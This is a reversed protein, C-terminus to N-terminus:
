TSRHSTRPNQGSSERTTCPPVLKTSNTSKTPDADRRKISESTPLHSVHLTPTISRGRSGYPKPGSGCSASTIKLQIVFHSMLSQGRRETRQHNTTRGFKSQKLWNSFYRRFTLRAFERRWRWISDRSIFTSHSTPTPGVPTSFRTPM